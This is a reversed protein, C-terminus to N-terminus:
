LYKKLMNQLMGFIRFKIYCYLLGCLVPANKENTKNTILFINLVNMLLSFM